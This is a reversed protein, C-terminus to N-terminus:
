GARSAPTCLWTAPGAQRGTITRPASPDEAIGVIRLTRSGDALRVSGGVGAGIRGAAAPTLAVEDAHALARGSQQRLIGSALPDAYDLMRAGVTGIGTPTRV